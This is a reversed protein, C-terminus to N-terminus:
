RSSRLTPWGVRRVHSAIRPSARARSAFSLHPNSWARHRVCVPFHEDARQPHKFVVLVVDAVLSAFVTIPLVNVSQYIVAFTLTKGIRTVLETAQPRAFSCEPCVPCVQRLCHSASYLGAIVLYYGKFRFWSRNREANRKSSTV